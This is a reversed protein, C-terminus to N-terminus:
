YNRFNNCCCHRHTNNRECNNQPTQKQWIRFTGEWYRTQNNNEHNEETYYSPFCCYTEEVRKQCRNKRENYCNQNDNYFM